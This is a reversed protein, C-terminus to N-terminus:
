DVPMDPSSLPDWANLEFEQELQAQRLGPRLKCVKMYGCLGYKGSCGGDTYVGRFRNTAYSQMIDRLTDNTNDEWEALRADSFSLPGLEFQSDSKRVVHLNIRVGAIPQGLLKGALWTYGMMQQSIKYKELWNKEFRSTTKFDEVYILGDKEYIRDIKGVYPYLLSDSAVNAAIELMPHEPWGLTRESKNASPKGYKKLFNDYELLARDLTRYDDASDSPEWGLTAEANVVARDGDSRHHWDMIIHWVKGYALAPSTAGERRNQRMSFDYLRPCRNYAQIATADIPRDLVSSGATISM